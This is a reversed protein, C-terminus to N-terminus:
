RNIPFSVVDGTAERGKELGNIVGACVGPLDEDAYEPYAERWPVTDSTNHNCIQAM